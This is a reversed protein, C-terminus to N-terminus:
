EPHGAVPSGAPARLLQVTAAEGAVVGPSDVSLLLLGDAHAMSTLVGSSQTGTSRFWLGDADRELVVRQLRARGPKSPWDVRSRATVLPLFRDQVGQAALVVPRAFQLFNVMCSVPNGPLGFLPVVTGDSRTAHGYALPKGPKMCVKWFDMSAGVAAFAEKVFDFAGVSVGGTTLVIDAQEAGNAIAKAIADLDDPANGLDIPEGGAELVLGCLAVNNSSYIQGPLLPEGPQVVEDGTSLVAVRPRRVVSVEPFGLSSVLGVAAATLREGRRLIVAGHAIDGGRPRIHDGVSATHEICVCGARSGDTKEVMVVADAGEPMPAGTMIASATGPGVPMTGVSGAAIVENLRLEVGPGTDAARVAYGDMASNHFPPVDRPSVVDAALVRDYAQHLPVSEVHLEPIVAHVRTLAESITLM